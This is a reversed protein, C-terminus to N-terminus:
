NEQASECAQNWSVKSERPIKETAIDIGAVLIKAYIASHNSLNDSSHIVGAESVAVYVLARASFHDIVSNSVVNNVESMFTYDVLQINENEFSQWFIKLSLDELNKGM